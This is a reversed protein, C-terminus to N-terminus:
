LRLVPQGMVHESTRHTEELKEWLRARHRLRLALARRPPQGSAGPHGPAPGELFRNVRLCAKVPTGGGLPSTLPEPAERRDTM